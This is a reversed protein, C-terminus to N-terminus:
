PITPAGARVEAATRVTQEGIWDARARYLSGVLMGSPACIRHLADLRTHHRDPRRVRRSKPPSRIILLSMPAPSPTASTDRAATPAKAECFPTVVCAVGVDVAVAGAVAVPVAVLVAVACAVAVLAAVPVAVAVSVAVLTGVAVVVGAGVAVLVGPAPAEGVAVALPVGVAPQLSSLFSASSWCSASSSLLSPPATLVGCGPPM